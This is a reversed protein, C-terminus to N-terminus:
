PHIPYRSQVCIDSKKKHGTDPRIVKDPWYNPCIYFEMDSIQRIDPGNSLRNIRLRMQFIIITVQIAKDKELEKVANRAELQVDKGVIDLM